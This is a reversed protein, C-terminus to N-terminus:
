GPAARRLADDRTAAFTFLSATGTLDLLRRPQGDIAAVVVAGDREQMAAAARLLEKLMTSDIFTTEALDVVVRRVAADSLGRDFAARVTGAAAVDVEGQIVLVHTDPSARSDELTYSPGVQVGDPGGGAAARGNSPEAM